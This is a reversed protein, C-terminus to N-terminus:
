RVAVPAFRSDKATLLIRHGSFQIKVPTCSTLHELACLSWCFRSTGQWSLPYMINHHRQNCYGLPPDSCIWMLSKRSPFLFFTPSVFYKNGLYELHDETQQHNLLQRSLLSPLFSCNNQNRVAYAKSSWKNPHVVEVYPLYKTVRALSYCSGEWSSEVNQPNWDVAVEYERGRSTPGNFNPQSFSKCPNSGDFYAASPVGSNCAQCWIHVSSHKVGTSRIAPYLNYVFESHYVVKFLERLDDRMKEARDAPKPKPSTSDAIM